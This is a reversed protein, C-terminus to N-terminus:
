RHLLEIAPLAMELRVLKKLTRLTIQGTWDGRWFYNGEGRVWIVPMDRAM